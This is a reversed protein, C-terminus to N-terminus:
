SSPSPTGFEPPSIRRPSRFVTWSVARRFARSHNQDAISTRRSRPKCDEPPGATVGNLFRAHQRIEERGSRRPLRDHDPTSTRLRGEPVSAPDYGVLKTTSRNLWSRNRFHLCTKGPRNMRGTAWFPPVRPAGVVATSDRVKPRSGAATKRRFDFSVLLRTHIQQGIDSPSYEHCAVNLDAYTWGPSGTVAEYETTV